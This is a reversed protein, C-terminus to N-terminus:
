LLPDLIHLNNVLHDVPQVTNTFNSGLSDMNINGYDKIIKVNHKMKLATFLGSNRILDPGKEVGKVKQGQNIAAGIFSLTSATTKKIKM